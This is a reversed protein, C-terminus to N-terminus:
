LALAPQTTNGGGGGGSRCLQKRMSSRRWGVGGELGWGAKGGGDGSYPTKSSYVIARLRADGGGEPCVYVRARVCVCVPARACM